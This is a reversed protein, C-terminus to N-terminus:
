DGSSTVTRARGAGLLLLAAVPVTALLALAVNFRYRDVAAVIWLAAALGVFPVLTRTSVGARQWWRQTAGDAETSTM